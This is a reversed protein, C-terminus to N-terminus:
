ILKEQLFQSSKEDKVLHNEILSRNEPVTSSSSNNNNLWWGEKVGYCCGVETEGDKSQPFDSLHAYVHM